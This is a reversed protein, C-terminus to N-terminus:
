VKDSQSSYERWHGLRLCILGICIASIATVAHVILIGCIDFLIVSGSHGRLELCDIVVLLLYLFFSYPILTLLWLLLQQVDSEPVLGKPIKRCSYVAKKGCVALNVANRITMDPHISFM